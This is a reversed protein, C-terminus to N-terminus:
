VPNLSDRVRNRVRRVVRPAVTATDSAYPAAATTTTSPAAISTAAGGPVVVSGALLGRVDRLSLNFEATCAQSHATWTLFM